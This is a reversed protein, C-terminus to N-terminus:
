VRLKLCEKVISKYLYNDLVSYPVFTCVICDLSNNACHLSVKNNDIFLIYDDLYYYYVNEHKAIFIPPSSNRLRRLLRWRNIFEDHMFFYGYITIYPISASILCILFGLIIWSHDEMRTFRYPVFNKNKM